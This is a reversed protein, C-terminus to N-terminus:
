IIVTFCIMGDKNIEVSTKGKYMEVISLGIEYAKKLETYTLEVDIEEVNALNLLSKILFQM